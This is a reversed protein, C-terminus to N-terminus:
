DDLLHVNCPFTGPAPAKTTFLVAMTWLTVSNVCLSKQKLINHMSFYKHESWIVVTHWEIFGEPMVQIWLFKTKFSSSKCSSLANAKFSLDHFSIIKFLDKLKYHNLSLLTNLSQTLFIHLRGHTWTYLHTPHPSGEWFSSLMTWPPSAMNQNMEWAEMLQWAPIVELGPQSSLYRLGLPLELTTRERNQKAYKRLIIKLDNWLLSNIWLRDSCPM